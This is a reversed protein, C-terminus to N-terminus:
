RGTDTTIRGDLMEIQRPMRGAIAEENTVVITTVGADNLDTLLDLLAQGTAPDVNGTPEDALVIAPWGALARAIAVRRRQGGTPDTPSAGPRTAQGVVGIRHARLVALERDGLLSVDFGTVRLRGSTPRDMAAMLRLLTTKGSGSPGRVAVLEGAAVSLNVGTLATVPPTGPYVKAVSELELVLERGDVRDPEGAPVAVAAAVAAPHAVPVMGTSTDLAFRSRNMNRVIM